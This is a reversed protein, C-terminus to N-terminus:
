NICVCNVDKETYDFEDPEEKLQELSIFDGRYEGELIGISPDFSVKQYNNGEDDAASIVEFELAEPHEEVLKNLNDLYKRLNM